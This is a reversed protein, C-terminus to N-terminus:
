LHQCWSGCLIGDRVSSLTAKECNAILWFQSSIFLHNRCSAGARSRETCARALTQGSAPNCQEERASACRPTRSGKNVIERTRICIFSGCGRPRAPIQGTIEVGAYSLLKGFFDNGGRRATGRIQKETKVAKALMFSHNLYILVRPFVRNSTRSRTTCSYANARFFIGFCFM